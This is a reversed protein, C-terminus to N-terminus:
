LRCSSLDQVVDKYLTPQSAISGAFNFVSGRNWFARSLLIFVSLATPGHRPFTRPPPASDPVARCSTPWSSAGGGERTGAAAKSAFDERQGTGSYSGQTGGPSSQSKVWVLEGCM